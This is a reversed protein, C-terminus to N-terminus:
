APIDWDVTAGLITKVNDPTVLKAHTVPTVSVCVLRAAFVRQGNVKGIFGLDFSASGYRVVGVDITLIDATRASREWEIVSRVAMFDWNLDLYNGNPASGSLWVEFADDMYAMYNPNFVVGQQDCDGYRVRVRHQYPM